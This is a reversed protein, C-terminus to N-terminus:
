DPDHTMEQVKHTLELQMHALLIIESENETIGYGMITARGPHQHTHMTESISVAEECSAHLLCAGM